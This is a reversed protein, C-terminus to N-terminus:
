RLVRAVEEVERRQAPELVQELARELGLVDTSAPAPPRAADVQRRLDSPGRVSGVALRAAFREADPRRPDHPDDVLVVAALGLLAALAPGRVARRGVASGDALSLGDEDAIVVRGQARLERRLDPGLDRALVLVFPEDPRLGLRQAFCARDAPPAGAVSAPWPVVLPERVQYHQRAADAVAASAAVVLSARDCGWHELQARYVQPRNLQNQRRVVEHEALLVVLPLHLRGCLAPGTHHALPGEALVVDFPGHERAFRDVQVHAPGAALLVRNEDTLADPLPGAALELVTPAGPRAPRPPLAGRRQRVVVVEHGRAVLTTALAEGYSQLSVTPAEDGALLLVRRAPTTRPTPEVPAAPSMSSTTPPTARRVTSVFTFPGRRAGAPAPRAALFADIKEVLQAVRAKTTHRAHAYAAAEREIRARLPADGLLRLLQRELDREDKFLAYHRDDEFLEYQGNAQADTLLVRGCAAAEFVRFNLDNAVHQNFVVRARAYIAATESKERPGTTTTVLLRLGHREALRRVPDARWTQSGVFVVDWERSADDVDVPRFVEGDAHLPLWSRPAEFVHGWTQHAHFVLDMDRALQRHFDLKKHTDVLWAFKPLDLRALGSPRVFNGTVADLELFFRAGTSDVDELRTTPWGPGCPRVDHTAALERVIAACFSENDLRESFVIAAPKM